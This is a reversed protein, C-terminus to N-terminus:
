GAFRAAAYCFYKSGLIKAKRIRPSAGLSKAATQVTVHLREFPDVVGGDPTECDSNLDAPGCM